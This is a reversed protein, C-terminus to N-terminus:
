SQGFVEAEDGAYSAGLFEMDQRIEPSLDIQILLLRGSQELNGFM